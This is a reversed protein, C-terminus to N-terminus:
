KRRLHLGWLLCAALAVLGPAPINGSDPVGEGADPDQDVLVDKESPPLGHLFEQVFAITALRAMERAAEFKTQNGDQAPAKSEDNKDADDKAHDKHTYDDGDPDEPDDAGPDYSVLRLGEPAEGGNLIAEDAAARADAPLDVINSHSYCDQVAHLARGLAAIAGDPDGAASRNTAEARQQQIYRTTAAFADADPTGVDRDCHHEARYAARADIRAPEDMDPDWETEDMDPERVAAQLARVGDEPFGAADVIATIDDHVSSGPPVSAFAGAQPPLALALALLLLAAVPRAPRVRRALAPRAGLGQRAPTRQM